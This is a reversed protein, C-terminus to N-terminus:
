ADEIAEYNTLNSDIPHVLRTRFEHEKNNKLIEELVTKAMAIRRCRNICEESKDEKYDELMEGLIEETVKVANRRKERIKAEIGLIQKREAQDMASNPNEAEIVQYAWFQRLNEGTAEGPRPCEM